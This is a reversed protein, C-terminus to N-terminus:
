DMTLATEVKADPNEKLYNKMRTELEDAITDLATEADEDGLLYKQIEEHMMGQHMDTYDFAGMTAPVVLDPDNLQMTFTYYPGGEGYMEDEAADKKIPILGSLRCYESSNDTRNLFEILKWAADPNESNSSISLSYSGNILNYLKGDKESKPVPMVMWQDDSMNELCTAAVESDNMLTGTLGGIFNDVMETFGWNISDEPAYGNLYLGTWKKFAELCEDSKILINGESDYTNGGTYNQLYTM